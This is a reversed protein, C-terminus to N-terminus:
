DPLRDILKNVADSLSDTAGKEEPNARWEDPRRNKLWFIGATTDPPYHKITPTIVIESGQDNGLSVTRIDDEEHSYGIARHYLANKVREDAYEKGVKLANAFEEFNIKWYHITRISVDFLDALDVDTAGLKCAVAAQSVYEPKYKEPRAM